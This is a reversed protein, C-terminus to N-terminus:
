GSPVTPFHAQEADVVDVDVGRRDVVGHREVGVHKPQLAARLRRAFWADPQVEALSRDDMHVGDIVLRRRGPQKVMHGKHALIEFGDGGSEILGPKRIANLLPGIEVPRLDEHVVWVADQQLDGELVSRQIMGSVSMGCM